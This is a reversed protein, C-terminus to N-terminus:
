GPPFNNNKAVPLGLQTAGFLTVQEQPLNALVPNIHRIQLTIQPLTSTGIDFKELDVWRLISFSSTPINDGAKQVPVCLQRAPGVQVGHTPIMPVLVPNLQRLSLGINLPNNPTVAYCKLDLHSVLSMVEASPVVGNKIVPVCLQQPTTMFVETRPLTQLLPNLHSLLVIQNVTIGTIKYCALDVFRIFDLVPTPPQSNNKAVPVCLQERQGLIVTETPLNALAPNM